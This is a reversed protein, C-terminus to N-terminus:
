YFLILIFTYETVDQLLKSGIEMGYAMGNNEIFVIRFWPLIEIQEHLTMSTKVWIKIWQDVLIVGVIIAASLWARKQISTTSM